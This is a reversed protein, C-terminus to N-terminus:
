SDSFDFDLLQEKIRSPSEGRKPPYQTFSVSYQLRLQLEPTDLLLVHLSLAANDLTVSATFDATRPCVTESPYM